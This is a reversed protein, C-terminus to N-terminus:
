ILYKSILITKSIQIRREAASEGNEEKGQRKKGKSIRTQWRHKRESGIM